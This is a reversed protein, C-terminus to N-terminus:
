ISASESTRIFRSTATSSITSPSPSTARPSASSRNEPSSSNGERESSYLHMEAQSGAGAELETKLHHTWYWGFTGGGYFSRNYWGAYEGLNSKDGNLWGVSGSADTRYVPHSSQAPQSSARGPIGLVVAAAVITVFRM